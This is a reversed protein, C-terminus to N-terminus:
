KKWNAKDVMMQTFNPHTKASDKLEHAKTGTMKEFAKVDRTTMNTKQYGGEKRESLRDDSDVRFIKGNDMIIEKAM